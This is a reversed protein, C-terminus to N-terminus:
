YLDELTNNKTYKITDKTSQEKTIRTSNKVTSIKHNEINRSYMIGFYVALIIIINFLRQM